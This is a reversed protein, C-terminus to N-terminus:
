RIAFGYNVQGSVVGDASFSREAAVSHAGLSLVTTCRTGYQPSVIFPPSLRRELEMGVGTDPLEADGAPERDDMLGFLRQLDCQGDSAGLGRLATAVRRSKPWPEDLLGNSLAHIGPEVAIPDAHTSCYWLSERDGALLNFSGYDGRRAHVDSVYAEPSLGSQIFDLPLDGRTRQGGQARPDRFNTVVAWHGDHSVALWTGGAQEDRGALPGNPWAWWSMIRAPRQHFEDRNAALLLHREQGPTFAFAILCM